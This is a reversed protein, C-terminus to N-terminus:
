KDYTSFLLIKYNTRKTRIAPYLYPILVDCVNIQLKIKEFTSTIQRTGFSYLFQIIQRVHMGVVIMKAPGYIM